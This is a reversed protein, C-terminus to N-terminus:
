TKVVASSSSFKASPQPWTTTTQTATSTSAAERTKTVLGLVYWCILSMVVMEGGDEMGGVLKRLPTWFSVMEHLMDLGVGCVALLVFLGLMRRTVQRFEADGGPKGFYAAAIALLFLPGVIGNFILEGLEQARLGMFGVFGLAHGIALGAQDHIRMADDLLLYIFLLTWVLYSRNHKLRAVQFIALAILLEKAYQFFEGLSHDEQISLYGVNLSPIVYRAAHLAILTADIGLLYLLRYRGHVM